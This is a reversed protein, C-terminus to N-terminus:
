EIAEKIKAVVEDYTEAACIYDTIETKKFFTVGFVIVTEGSYVGVYQIKSIAILRKNGSSKSIVEIFGKLANKRKGKGTSSLSSPSKKSLKQLIARFHAVHIIVARKQATLGM